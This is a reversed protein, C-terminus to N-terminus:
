LASSPGEAGPLAASRSSRGRLDESGVVQGGDIHLVVDPDFEETPGHNVVLTTRGAASQRVAAAVLVRSEADLGALPEDLVLVSARSVAARAIMLRRSQGGSLTAGDEGLTTDYGEPLSAIVGDLLARRAAEEVEEDTADPCGYLINDRITGSFLEIEQPVYAFCRRYSHLEYREFPRGDVSVSGADLRLLRLLVALTTSKGSGSAGSLVAFTGPALDFTLGRLAEARGQYRCVVNRFTIAGELQEVGLGVGSPEPEERMVELLREAGSSAKALRGGERSIRRLPKFLLRAYTTAVILDGPSLRGSQVRLAGVYLVLALGLGSMVETRWSMRAAIRTAKVAAKEGAGTHEAFRRATDGERAYAKVVRIQRLNEMAFAAANGEKRRQKRTTTRLERSSRRLSISLLPMPALAALALWPDIVLLVVTMGVFLAGREALALWSTVLGDRLLNVDGMLRILLDGTRSSVHYPMELRHLHEFVQRRVRTTVKRGVEATIITARMTFSASLAAILVVALALVIAVTEPAADWRPTKAEDVLVVHDILLAIPWPKLLEAGTALLAFGLAVVLPRTQRRFAPRFTRAAEVLVGLQAKRFGSALGRV